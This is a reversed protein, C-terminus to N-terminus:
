LRFLRRIAKLPQRLLSRHIKNARQIGREIEDNLEAGWEALEEESPEVLSEANYSNDLAEVSPDLCVAYQEDFIEWHLHQAIARATELAKKQSAEFYAAPISIRVCNFSDTEKSTSFDGEPTVREIDIEFNISPADEFKFGDGSETIGEIERLFARLPASELEQTFADDHRLSLDYSMGFRAMRSSTM